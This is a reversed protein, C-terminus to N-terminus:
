KYLADIGVWIYEWPEPEPGQMDAGSPYSPVWGLLKLQQFNNESLWQYCTTSEFAFLGVEGCQLDITFGTHHRSYGPPAVQHLISVVYDDVEGSAINFLSIDEAFLRQLFLERQTEISRYAATVRIDLGAQAAKQVLNNLPELALPQISLGDDFDALGVNVVSRLRYGRAEAIERIRNDAAEDGTIYPPTVLQKTNPYSYSSYLIKFEDATFVGLEKNQSPNIVQSATNNQVNNIIKSQKTSDSRNYFVAWSVSGLAFILLISRRIIRRRKSKQNRLAKADSLERPHVVRM